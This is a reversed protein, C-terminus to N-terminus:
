IFVVVPGFGSFASKESAEAINFVAFFISSRSDAFGIEGTVASMARATAKMEAFASLLM